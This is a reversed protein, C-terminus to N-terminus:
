ENEREKHLKKTIAKRLKKKLREITDIIERERALNTDLIANGKITREKDREEKEVVREKLAGNEEKLKEIEEQLKKFTSSYGKKKGGTRKSSKSSAGNKAKAEAIKSRELAETEFTDTMKKKGHLSQDIDDKLDQLRHEFDECVKNLSKTKEEQTITNRMLARSYNDLEKEVFSIKDEMREFKAAPDSHRTGYTDKKDSYGLGEYGRHGTGKSDDLEDTDLGKKEKELLWKERVQDASERVGKSSYTQEREQELKKAHAKQFETVGQGVVLRNKFGSHPRDYEDQSYKSTLKSGYEDDEDTYDEKEASQGYTNSTGGSGSRDERIYDRYRKESEDLSHKEPSTQNSENKQAIKHTENLTENIIINRKSKSASVSNEKM